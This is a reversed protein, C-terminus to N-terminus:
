GYVPVCQFILIQQMGLVGVERKKKGVSVCHLPFWEFCERCCVEVEREDFLLRCVPSMGAGPINDHESSREKTQFQQKLVGTTAHSVSRISVKGQTATSNSVQQFLGVFWLYRQPRKRNRAAVGGLGLWKVGAVYLFLWHNRPLRRQHPRTPSASASTANKFMSLLAM